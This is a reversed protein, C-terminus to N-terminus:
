SISLSIPFPSHPFPSTPFHPIEVLVRFGGAVRVCHGGWCGVGWFELVWFGVGLM